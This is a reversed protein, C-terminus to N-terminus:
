RSSELSTTLLDLALEQALRPSLAVSLRDSGHYIYLRIEKSDYTVIAREHGPYPPPPSLSPASAGEEMHRPATRGLNDM